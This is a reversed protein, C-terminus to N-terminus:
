AAVGTRTRLGRVTPHPLLRDLCALCIDKQDLLALADPLESDHVGRGIVTWAADQLRAITALPNGTALSCRPPFRDVINIGHLACRAPQRHPLSVNNYGEGFRERAADTARGRPWNKERM